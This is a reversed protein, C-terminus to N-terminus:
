HPAPQTGTSGGPAPLLDSGAPTRAEMRNEDIQLVQDMRRLDCIVGGFPITAGVTSVGTGYPMVDVLCENAIRFIEAVEETSAPLVIIHSLHGPHVVPRPCLRLCHRRRQLGVRQGAAEQFM